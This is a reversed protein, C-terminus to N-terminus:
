KSLNEIASILEELSPKRELIERFDPKMFLFALQSLLKLHSTTSSTLLIFMVYVPKADPPNMMIPKDLFCIYIRQEKDKKLLPFRPHPIAIGNGVATSILEERQCLETLLKDAELGSPLSIEKVVNRYIDEPKDGKVNIFIGGRKIFTCLENVDSM